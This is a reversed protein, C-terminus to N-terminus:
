ASSYMSVFKDPRKMPLYYKHSILSWYAWYLLKTLLQQKTVDFSVKHDTMSVSPPM